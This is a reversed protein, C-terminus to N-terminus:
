RRTKQAGVGAQEELLVGPWAFDSFIGGTHIFVVPRQRGLRGARVGDLLACFAKGTYVPDLVIGEVRALQRIAALEKEYPVAYGDGVYGDIFRLAGGDFSIPLRFETIAQQCLEAVVGTHHSVDDSVPVAMVTWHELHHLWRGLLMGAYTGGSSIAMVIDCEVVGAKALQEALEAAARIYGWCGLPESSGAPTFRGKHGASRLRELQEAVIEDRRREYEQRPYTSIQAGFLRALLHNGQPLGGPPEPRFLLCAGLGLKACAAAAARCHNSQPAGETVLTDCGAALADALVYELKRIKNGSVELGSLDDRKMWIQGGGLERELRELRVLPTPLHALRIREPHRVAM